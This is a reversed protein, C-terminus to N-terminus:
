TLILRADALFVLDGPAPGSAPRSWRRWLILPRFRGVDKARDAGFVALTCRKHQREAIGCGHRQMKRFYREGDRGTRVCNHQHILSSPMQGVLEVNGFVDADDRQRGFTGFQVRNFVDPM